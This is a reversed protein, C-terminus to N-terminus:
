DGGWVLFHYYRQYGYYYFANYPDEAGPLTVEDYRYDWTEWDGDILLDNIDTEITPVSPHAENHTDVELRNYARDAESFGMDRGYFQYFNGYWYYYTWWIDTYSDYQIKLEIDGNYTPLNDLYWVETISDFYYMLQEDAEDYREVWGIEIWDGTGSNECYIRNAVFEEDGQHNVGPDVVTFRGHLGTHEVNVTPGAYHYPDGTHEMITNSEDYIIENGQDTNWSMDPEKPEWSLAIIYESRSNPVYPIANKALEAPDVSDRRFVEFDRESPPILVFTIPKGIANVIKSNNIHFLYGKPDRFYKDPADILLQYSGDQLNNPIEM